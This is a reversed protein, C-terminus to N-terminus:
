HSVMVNEDEVVHISMSVCLGELDPRLAEHGAAGGGPDVREAVVELEDGEVGAPPDAGVLEGAHHEDLVEEARQEVGEVPPERVVLLLEVHGLREAERQGLVDREAGDDRRAKRRGGSSTTYADM